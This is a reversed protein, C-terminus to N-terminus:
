IFLVLRNPLISYFVGYGDTCMAAVGGVIPTYGITSTSLLYNGGGGSFVFNTTNFEFFM